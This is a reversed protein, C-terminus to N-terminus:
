SLIHLLARRLLRRWWPGSDRHGALVFISSVGTTENKAEIFSPHEILRWEAPGDPTDRSMVIDGARVESAYVHRFRRTASGLDQGIHTEPLLAAPSRLEVNPGLERLKTFGAAGAVAQDVYSRPAAQDRRLARAVTM